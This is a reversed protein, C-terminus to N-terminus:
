DPIENNYREIAENRWTQHSHNCVTKKNHSHVFTYIDSLKNHAKVLMKINEANNRFNDFNVRCSLDECFDDGVIREILELLEENSLETKM